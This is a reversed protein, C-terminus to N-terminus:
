CTERITIRGLKRAFNKASKVRSIARDYARPNLPNRKRNKVCREGVSVLSPTGQSSTVWYESKNPHYGVPCALTMGTAATGGAQFVQNAPAGRLVPLNSMTVPPLGVARATLSRRQAEVRLRGIDGPDLQGSQIRRWERSSAGFGKSPRKSGFIKAAATRAFGTVFSGGPVFSAARGVLQSGIGKIAKGLFGFLGPDGQFGTGPMATGYRAMGRSAKIRGSM